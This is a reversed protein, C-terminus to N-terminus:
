GNLMAEITERVVGSVNDLQKIIKDYKYAKDVAEVMEMYDDDRQHNMLLQTYKM